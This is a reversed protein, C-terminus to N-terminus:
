NVSVDDVYTWTGYWDDPFTVNVLRVRITQGRYASLDYTFLQWGLDNIPKSCGYHTLDTNGLRALLSGGIYIEFRDYKDANVKDYTLIRYYVALQPSGSSPVSIDQYIWSQGVLGGTGHQCPANEQGLLAAYNGGHVPLSLIRPALGSDGGANWGNLNGTEFGGNTVPPPPPPPPYNKLVTPLYVKLSGM